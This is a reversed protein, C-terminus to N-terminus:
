KLFFKYTKHRIFALAIAIFISSKFYNNQAVDLATAFLQGFFNLSDQEPEIELFADYMSPKNLTFNRLQNILRQEDKKILENRLLPYNLILTIYKWVSGNAITKSRKSYAKFKEFDFKSVMFIVIYIVLMYFIADTIQYFLRKNNKANKLMFIFKAKRTKLLKRREIKNTQTQAAEVAKTTEESSTKLLIKALYESINISIKGFFFNTAENLGTQSSM